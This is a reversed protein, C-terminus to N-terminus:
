IQDLVLLMKEHTIPNEDVCNILEKTKSLSDLTPAILARKVGLRQLEEFMPVYDNDGSVLCVTKILKSNKVMMKAFWIISEDVTDAETEMKGSKRNQKLEKLHIKPCTMLRLGREVCIQQQIVSLHEPAFVFGHGQVLKGELIETGLLEGVKERTWKMLGEIRGEIKMEGIGFRNLLSCWVNDWDILLLVQEQAPVHESEM